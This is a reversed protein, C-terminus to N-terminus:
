LSVELMIWKQPNKNTWSQIEEKLVVDNKNRNYLAGNCGQIIVSSNHTDLVTGPIYDYFPRVIAKQRGSKTTTGPVRFTEQARITRVAEFYVIKGILENGEAISLTETMNKTGNCNTVIKLVTGSDLNFDLIYIIIKIIPFGKKLWLVFPNINTCLAQSVRNIIIWAQRNKTGPLDLV